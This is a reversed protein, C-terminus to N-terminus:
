IPAAMEALPSPRLPAASLVVVGPVTPHAPFLDFVLPDHGPVVHDGSDALSLCREGAEILAPVDVVGPFPMAKVVNDYYHVADSALVVWGRATHVRVIQLGRTHGGVLHLSIGPAVASDGNVFRVRERFNQRVMHVVDEVEYAHRCLKHRMDPGTAAQMEKEQLHFQAKPFLIANGAHDYHLHTIIIDDVDQPTIGLDRLGETPCRIFDRRRQVAAEANFGTDVLITRGGGRILWVCYSMPMSGEHLDAILFNEAPRRQVTAYQIALVEYEPLATM